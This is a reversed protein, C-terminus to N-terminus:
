HHAFDVIVALLWMVVTGLWRPRGKWGKHRLLLGVWITDLLFFVAVVPLALAWVLPEGTVPIIGHEAAIRWGQSALKLYAVVGFVNGVVFYANLPHL